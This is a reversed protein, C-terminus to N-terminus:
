RDRHADQEPVLKESLHLYLAYLVATLGFAAIGLSQHFQWLGGICVLAGFGGLASTADIKQPHIM